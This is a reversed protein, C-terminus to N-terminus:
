RVIIKLPRGHIKCETIVTIRLRKSWVREALIRIETKRSFYRYEGEDTELIFGKFDGFYDFMLWGIKSTRDEL